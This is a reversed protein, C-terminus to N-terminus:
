ELLTDLSYHQGLLSYQVKGVIYIRCIMNALRFRAKPVIASLQRGIQRLQHCPMNVQARTEIDANFCSSQMEDCRGGRRWQSM